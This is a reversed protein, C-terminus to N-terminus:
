IDFIFIHVQKDQVICSLLYVLSDLERINRSKLEDYKKLFERPTSTAEAIKRRAAHSSVKFLISTYLLKNVAHVKALLCYINLM